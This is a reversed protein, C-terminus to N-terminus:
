PVKSRHYLVRRRYSRWDPRSTGATSRPRNQRSSSTSTASTVEGSQSGMMFIAEADHGAAPGPHHLRSVAAGDGQGALDDIAGFRDPDVALLRRCGILQGVVKEPSDAPDHGRAALDHDEIARMILIDQDRADM